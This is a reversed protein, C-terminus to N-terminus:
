PCWHGSRHWSWPTADRRCSPLPPLSRSVEPSQRNWSTLPFFWLYLTSLAAFTQLKLKQVTNSHTLVESSSGWVSRSCRCGMVAGHSQQWQIGILTRVRSRQVGPWSQRQRLPAALFYSSCAPPVATLNMPFAKCFLYVRVNSMFHPLGHNFWLGMNFGNILGDGCQGLKAKQHCHRWATFTSIRSRAPPRSDGPKPLVLPSIVNESSQKITFNFTVNGCTSIRFPSWCWHSM